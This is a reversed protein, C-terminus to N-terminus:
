RMQCLIIVGKREAMVSARATTTSGVRGERVRGVRGERVRGVRGERVRGVRGERVRGVRAATRWWDDAQMWRAAAKVAVMVGDIPYGYACRSRILRAAVNWMSAHNIMSM